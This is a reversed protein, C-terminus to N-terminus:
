IKDLIEAYLEYIDNAYDKIHQIGKGELLLNKFWKKLYDIDSIRVSSIVDEAYAYNEYRFAAYIMEICEEPNIEYQENLFKKARWCEEERNDTKIADIYDLLEM